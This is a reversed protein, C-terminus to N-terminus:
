GRTRRPRRPDVAGEAEAMAAELAAEAEAAKAAAEAAEAAAADAEAQAAELAAADAASTAPAAPEDDAGCASALLGMVFLCALLRAGRNGFFSHSSRM